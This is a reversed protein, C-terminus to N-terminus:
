RRFAPKEGKRLPPRPVGRLELSPVPSKVVAALKYVGRPAQALYGATKPEDEVILLKM